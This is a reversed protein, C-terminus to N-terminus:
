WLQALGARLRETALDIFARTKRSANQGERHVIHVPVPPPAFEALVARLRGDRIHQAVKYSLVNALGFGNLAAAVATDGTTALRSQLRIAVAEGDRRFRWESPATIGSTGITSHGPLDEPAAPTGHAEFYAPAACVVLSLQGVRVARMSSDPLDGIRIGIDAGEDLLSVVRDVFWCAVSMESYRNLYETVIPM